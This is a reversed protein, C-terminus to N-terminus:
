ALGALRRAAPHLVENELHIHRHLDQEFEDLGAWLARWSGCADEPVSYGDALGRL